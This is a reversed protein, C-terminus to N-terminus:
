DGESRLRMGKGALDEGEGAPPEIIESIESTRELSRHAMNGLPYVAAGEPAYAGLADALAGAAQSFEAKTIPYPRVLAVVDLAGGGRREGVEAVFGYCGSAIRLMLERPDGEIPAIRMEIWGADEIEPFIAIQM